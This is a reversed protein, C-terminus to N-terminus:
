AAMNARNLSEGGHLRGSRSLSVVRLLRAVRARSISRSATSRSFGRRSTRRDCRSWSSSAIPGAAELTYVLFSASANYAIETAVDDWKGDDVLDTIPPIRADNRVDV